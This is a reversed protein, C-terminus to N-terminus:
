KFDLKLYYLVECTAYPELLINWIKRRGKMEVIIKAMFVCSIAVIKAKILQRKNFTLFSSCNFTLFHSNLKIKM